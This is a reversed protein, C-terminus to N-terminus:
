PVDANGTTSTATWEVSPHEGESAHAHREPNSLGRARTAVLIMVVDFVARVRTRIRRFAGLDVRSAARDQMTLHHQVPDRKPEIARVDLGARLQGQFLGRLRELVIWLRLDLDAAM